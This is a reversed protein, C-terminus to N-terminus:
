RLARLIVIILLVVGFVVLCGRSKKPTDTPTAASTPTPGPQHRTISGSEDVEGKVQVTNSSAFTERLDSLLEDAPKLDLWLGFMPKDDSGGYLVAPCTGATYGHARTIDFSAGYDFATDAPLYGLTKLQGDTVRIAHPDHTNTPEPLLIVQVVKGRGTDRCRKSATAFRRLAPQYHSEGVVEQDFTDPLGSSFDLAKLESTAAAKSPAHATAPLRRNCHVCATATDSVTEACHPCTRM